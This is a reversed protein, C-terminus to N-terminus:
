GAAVSGIWLGLAAAAVCGVLTTAAYGLGTVSGEGAWLRVTEVSATSFTTYGGCFGTGIVARLDTALHGGHGFAVWGTLAGLLLSGSVNVVLTGTPIRLPSHRAVLADIVFRAAAGVGGVVALLLLTM